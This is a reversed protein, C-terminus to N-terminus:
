KVTTYLQEEKQAQSDLDDISFYNVEGIDAVARIRELIGDCESNVIEESRVNNNNLHKRLVLFYILIGPLGGVLFSIVAFLVDTGSKLNIETPTTRVANVISEIDSVSLYNVEGKNVMERGRAVIKERVEQRLMRETEKRKKTMVMAVIVPVTIMFLLQFIYFIYFAYEM